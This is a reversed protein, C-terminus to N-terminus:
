RCRFFTRPCAKCSQSGFKCARILKNLDDVRGNAGKRKKENDSPLLTSLIITAKESKDWAKAVLDYLTKNQTKMENHNQQCDNTGANILYVNPKTKSSLDINKLVEDIRAGPHGEHEGDQM